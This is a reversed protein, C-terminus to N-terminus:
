GSTERWLLRTNWTSHYTNPQYGRLENRTIVLEAPFGLWLGFLDDDVVQQFEFLLDRQMEPDVTVLLRKLLDDAYENAYGGPNWGQPNIRIDFNSGYLDFDTFGPYVPYSYAILDYNRSEVWTATFDAPSLVRLDFAAGIGAFDERVGELLRVLGPHADDRVIASFTLREGNFDELFGDNNLDTLGAETLLDRARELDRGPSTIEPNHAWPQAITGAANARIMNLFVGSAYRDRDVALSLARRIRVDGLLGPFARAPNQFNFAAFMVQAGSSVYLTGPTQQVSALETPGLHALVDGEGDNWRALQEEKATVFRLELSDFSPEGAFYGENREFSVGDADVGAARWPGTGVPLTDDWSFVTLSRQGAPRSVWHERYQAR